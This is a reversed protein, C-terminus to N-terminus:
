LFRDAHLRPPRGGTTRFRHGPPPRYRRLRPWIAPRKEGIAGPAAARCPERYRPTGIEDGTPANLRGRTSSGSANRRGPTCLHRLEGTVTGGAKDPATSIPPRGCSPRMLWPERNKPVPSMGLEHPGRAAHVEPPLASVAEETSAARTQRLVSRAQEYQRARSARVPVLTHLNAPTTWQPRHWSPATTGRRGGAPRPLASLRLTCTDPAGRQQAAGRHTLMRESAVAGPRAELGEHLRLARDDSSVFRSARSVACWRRTGIAPSRDRM